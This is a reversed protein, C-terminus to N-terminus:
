GRHAAKNRARNRAKIAARKAGAVSIRSTGLYRGGQGKGRSVYPGIQDLAVQRDAAPLSLAAAIASMMVRVRSFPASGQM